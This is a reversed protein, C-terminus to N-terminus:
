RRFLNRAADALMRNNYAGIGAATALGGAVMAGGTDQYKLRDVMSAGQSLAVLGLGGALGYRLAKDGTFPNRQGQTTASTKGPAPPTPPAVAGQPKPAAAVKPVGVADVTPTSANPGAWRLIQRGAPVSGVDAIDGLPGIQAVAQSTPAQAAQAPAARRLNGLRSGIGRALRGGAAIGAGGVAGIGGLVAGGAAGVGGLVAGGVDGAVGLAGMGWGGLARAMGGLGPGDLRPGLSHGNIGLGSGVGGGMLGGSDGMSDAIRRGIGRMTMGLRGFGGGGSSWDVMSPLGPAGLASGVGGGMLGGSDGMGGMLRQGIGRMSAGVRGFVNTSGGNWNVTSPLGPAGLASGVGGGMASGEDFFGGLSSRIRGMLSRGSGAASGLVSRAGEDLNRAFAGSIMNFM